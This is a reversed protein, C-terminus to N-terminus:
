LSMTLWEWEQSSGQGTPTSLSQPLSTMMGAGQMAPTLPAAMITTAVAAKARTVPTKGSTDEAETM